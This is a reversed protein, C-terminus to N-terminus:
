RLQLQHLRDVEGRRVAPEEVVRDAEGVVGQVGGMHDQGDVLPPEGGDHEEEGLASRGPAGPGSPGTPGGPGSPGVESTGASPGPGAPDLLQVRLLGVAFLLWVGLRVQVFGEVTHRTVEQGDGNWAVLMAAVGVLTLVVLTRWPATRWAGSLWGLALALVATVALEAVPPWLVPTLPSRMPDVAPAYFALDGHAFNFAQEPRQLPESVVYWPHTALWLLYASGAETDIWRELPGFAPDGRSIGVVKAGRPPTPTQGALRDVRQAEPMGHDAFWAVRGPYPFVRVFLVDATDPTTRHSAFTGWESIAVVGVLSVALVGVRLATGRHTAGAVVAVVGAAVALLGVTWVQADRTAAFCLCVAVTAAIRPWTPRVSVAIFGAFVLALLSLSLSESLVSRNWMTVPLTAAFGLVVFGAVVRRWGRAVLGGVTWALLGWALAAVVAQATAMAEPGGVVKLVLPVLPPRPGAWLARSALPQTSISRYVASDNWLLPPGARAQVVLYAAFACWGSAAVVGAASVPHAL